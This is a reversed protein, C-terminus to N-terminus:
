WGLAKSAATHEAPSVRSRRDKMALAYYLGCEGEFLPDGSACFRWKRLLEIYPANDIWKKQDETM